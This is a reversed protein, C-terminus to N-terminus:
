TTSETRSASTLLLEAWQLDEANTIKRNIADGLVVRVPTGAREFLVGEDTVDAEEARLLEILRAANFAQPTQVARLNARNPTATSDGIDNVERITDSVPVGPVSCGCAAAANLVRALVDPTAFPRAADHVAVINVTPDQKVLAEVGALVSDRRRAGGPVVTISAADASLLQRVADIDDAHAVIVTPIDAFAGRRLGRTARAVLPEGGLEVLAKRVGAPAGM